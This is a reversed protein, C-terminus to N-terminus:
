PNRYPILQLCLFMFCVMRLLLHLPELGGFNVKSRQEFVLEALSGTEMWSYYLQTNAKLNWELHLLQSANKMQFFQFLITGPPISLAFGPFLVVTIRPAVNLAEFFFERFIPLVIHVAGLNVNGVAIIVDPLNEM